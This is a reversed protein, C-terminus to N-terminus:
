RVELEFKVMYPTVKKQGKIGFRIYEKIIKFSDYKLELLIQNESNVVGYKNNKSVVFEGTSYIEKISDYEAPLAIKNKNSIVGFKKKDKFIQFNSKPFGIYSYENKVFEGTFIETETYSNNEVTLIYKKSDKVAFIKNRTSNYFDYDEPIVVQGNPSFLGNKDESNATIYYNYFREVQKYAIPIIDKELFPNIIGKLNGKTAHYQNKFSITDGYFAGYLVDYILPKLIKDKGDILGEKGNNKVTYVNDSLSIDDYKCEIEYQGSSNILGKKKTVTNLIIYINPETVEEFRHDKILNLVITGLSDIVLTNKNQLTVITKGYNFLDMDSAKFRTLQKGQSNFLDITNNTQVFLIGKNNRIYDHQIPLIQKNELNVVGVKNNKSVRVLNNEMYFVDDYEFPIKINGQLDIFGRKFKKNIIKGAEFLNKLDKDNHIYNYVPKIIVNGVSDILGMKDNFTRFTAYNNEFDSVYEYKKDNMLQNRFTNFKKQSIALLPLLLLCFRIIKM